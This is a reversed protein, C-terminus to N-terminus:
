MREPATMGMLTLVRKFVLKAARYLRLRARAVNEPVESHLVRYNDYLPHFARALDLAWFAIQHPAITDHAFVLQEPLELMKLAFATEEDSLLSLDAGDDWNASYGREEVQRLIGACRVHANQIYFVPNENSQKLALDLDFNITADASRNLMFYRVADAGIENILDDLTVMEGRRTSMGVQQGERLLHVWQTLVVTIKDADLGLAQIGRNVTQAETFHDSGFIDILWDFGRSLKNVHYAIDPLVYTPEENSRIIVRDEVDGFATSKFWVAPALNATKAKAVEEAPAGDRTVASYLYGREELQRRVQEIPEGYLSLEPFFLDFKVNIRALTAEINKFIEAEAYEKFPPWDENRWAAGKEAALRQGMEILYAGQYGDEPLEAPEGLAQLYRARLSLGLQTMQRGGNNFYYERFVNWGCAEMLRAISDGVVAGRTRGIHLPGTPNASVFEVNVRRGRGLDQDFVREGQTVITEIQARTWERNLWLNLYGPPAVVVKGLLDTTPLHEALAAAIDLPKMGLPKALAMAVPSAYDGQDAKKPRNMAVMLSAAEVTAPLKGAQQAATLAARIQQEIRQPIPTFSV